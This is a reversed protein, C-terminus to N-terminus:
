SASAPKHIGCVDYFAGKDQLRTDGSHYRVYERETERKRKRGWSPNQSQRNGKMLRYAKSGSAGDEM